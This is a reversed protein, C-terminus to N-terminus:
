AIKRLCLPVDVANCEQLEASWETPALLKWLPAIRRFESHLVGQQNFASM